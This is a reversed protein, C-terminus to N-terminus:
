HNLLWEQFLKVQIKYNNEAKMDIVERDYLDKLIADEVEKDGIANIDFRNCYGINKSNIAIQRLVALIDAESYEQLDESEGARILNDFKDEELADSGSIFSRAVDNVDAETVRILKNNNMFEVLRSCFIQIYYPNRSTYDIIRSVADGIYRSKGNEDLIPTEILARAPEEELYTLRQDKIVGFANSAYSEKKFSPVVDQGVLVVSFQARPNQTIAKWQKMITESIEGKKIGSYLYTFEDIMVVLNKDQWGDTQKCSMKFRIMYKTFTNLPNDEDEAKFESVTPIEFAPVNEGDMELFDLEQKISSLIKHYFSVENLNNIIDGLSFLVCFTKGTNLLHEKLRYMVSSKGSRKQGYIIIQKSPSLIIADVIEQIKTERGYFMDSELPVPGGDALPAYPNAIPTFEEQSYLKLTIQTSIRKFEEGTKYNCILTLPTAKEAIVDKSVMFQLKFIQSEGGEILNNFIDSTSDSIIRDSKEVEVSVEKIPSSDTHNRISVQISVSEDEHIITSESLLSIEIKPESLKKVDQFSEDLLISAKELLPLIADFSLKTPGNIIETKLESIQYAANNCSSEKSRYGSSSIYARLAPLISNTLTLFIRNDRATIWTKDKRIELIDPLASALEEISSTDWISRIAAFTEKYERIRTDRAIEWNKFYKEKDYKGTTQQIDKIGFDSLAQISQKYYNPNSYVKEIIQNFIQLNYLFMELIFEWNKHVYSDSLVIRLASDVDQKGKSIEKALKQNDYVVSLLYFCVQQATSYYNEELAFAENYFFRVIDSSSNNYIHIKAMDNCFRALASRMEFAKDPELLLMLKAETLLYKARESTRGSFQRENSQRILVRVDSLDKKTFKGSEKTKDKVGAYENYENLTQQIFSSLGNNQLDFEIDTIDNIIDTIDVDTENEIVDKLKRAKKNEPNELLSKELTQLANDKDKLGLYATAIKCLIISSRSKSNVLNQELLLQNAVEIYDDYAQVAYLLNELYYLTSVSNPLNGRHNKILNIVYDRYTDAKEGGMKYLQAYLMGLDKISSQLRENNDIAKIYYEIAKHYEKAFAYNKAQDYNGIIVNNNTHAIHKNAYVKRKEKKLKKQLEKAAYNDPYEELIHELVHFSHNLTDAVALSKALSLLENISGPRHISTAIDGRVNKQISYIVPLAGLLIPSKDIIRNDILQDMRFYLDNGTKADTIFGYNREPIVFKIHGIAPVLKENEQKRMDDALAQLSSLDRLTKKSKASKIKAQENNQVTEQQTSPSAQDPDNVSDKFTDSDQSDKDRSENGKSVKTKKPRNALNLASLDIKGVIKIEPRKFESKDNKETAPSDKEDLSSTENEIPESAVSNDQTKEEIISNEVLRHNLLKTEHSDDCVSKSIEEFVSIEAGKIGCTKGDQTKLIISDESIFLIEGIFEGNACTLKLKDGKKYTSKIFDFM